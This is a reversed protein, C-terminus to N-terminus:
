ASAMMSQLRASVRQYEVEIAALRKEFDEPVGSTASLELERCLASLVDAGISACSGSFAHAIRAVQLSEGATGAQRLSAIRKTSDSCYLNAVEAFGAGFMAQVAELHCGGKTAGAACRGPAAPQLWRALVQKLLQPRIPKSIFDDMGAALCKEREAQASGATL